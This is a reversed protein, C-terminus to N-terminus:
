LASGINVGPKTLSTATAVLVSRAALGEAGVVFPHDDAASVDATRTHTM